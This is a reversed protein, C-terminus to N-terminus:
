PLLEEVLPLIEEQSSLSTTSIYYTFDEYKFTIYSVKGFDWLVSIGQIVVENICHAKCSELLQQQLEVNNEVVSLVINVGTAGNIIHEEFGLVEKTENLTYLNTLCYEATEYWDFFLINEQSDSALQKLNKKSTEVTYDSTTCYRHEEEFSSVSEETSAGESSASGDTSHTPNFLSGGVWVGVVLLALAAACTGMRWWKKRVKRKPQVPTKEKWEISAELKEWVRDEGKAKQQEIMKEIDKDTLM